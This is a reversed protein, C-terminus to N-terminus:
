VWDELYSFREDFGGVRLLASRRYGINCTLFQGGFRNEM